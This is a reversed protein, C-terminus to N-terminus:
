TYRYCYGNTTPNMIEHVRRPRGLIGFELETDLTVQEAWPPNMLVTTGNLAYRRRAEDKAQWMAWVRDVMAHHLFFVPDQASSFLDQMTSGVSYHGGGHVGFVGDPRPPWHDMVTQFDVIDTSALLRAVVTANNYNSAVFNNLSRNLCRPHYDFGPAPIETVSTLDRSFPGMHIKIDKFPGCTVCGGGSGRPVNYGGGSLGQEDPNYAGDGSLSSGSCDFLTSESLNSSLPWDWYGCEDRLAREWLHMFHRHWPLFLGSYHVHLTYNIHTAVFDDVRNRVGPFHETPLRPTKKMLCLIADTYGFRHAPPMEGWEKRVAMDEKSCSSRSPFRTAAALAFELLAVVLVFHKLLFM